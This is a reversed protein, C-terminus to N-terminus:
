SESEERRRLTREFAESLVRVREDWGNARAHAVIAERNWRRDLANLLAEALADSDGFPVVIGLEEDSVVERNGGVDTTVVPLGCAMAEFFVNAWGENRTALVFLDAASLPIRLEEPAVPGLFRVTEQLGMRAVQDRLRQSWDGEPSPGGVVLYRLNPHRELLRPLVEIVRHFGKREVLGGVTVLVPGEEELGLRRRAEAQPMPRFKATDVGNGVVQVKEEAIGLAVVHEKLAQSVSFIWTAERLAALMRRRLAPKGAHPVETGRLTVTVPMGLWRGLRTAAYGDPYAFHADLLNFGEERQLRRVLRYSALAMFFGDWRRMVGPLAFFRPFFVRFGQQEEQFPAPPRYRPFFRRVVGQGPFWPRPSVVVLPFKRGVRFMRERVFLGAGPAGAHPFLTSFVILAPRAV